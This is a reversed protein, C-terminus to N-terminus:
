FTKREKQTCLKMKASPLFGFFKDIRSHIDIMKCNPLKQDYLEKFLFIEFIKDPKLRSLSYIISAINALEMSVFPIGLSPAFPIGLSPAFPIVMRIELFM